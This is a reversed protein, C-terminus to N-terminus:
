SFGLSLRRYYLDYGGEEKLLKNRWIKIFKKFDWLLYLSHSKLIIRRESM